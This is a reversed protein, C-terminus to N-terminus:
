RADHDGEKRGHTNRLRDAAIAAFKPSLEIGIFRRGLAKAALGTTGAGCFPDTITGGPRCGAAICRRPLDPPFVAFHPGSYPRTPISWVDGPNRGNPHAAKHHQDRPRMKVGFGGAAPWCSPRTRAM